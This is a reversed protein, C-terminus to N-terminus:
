LKTKIGCARMVCWGRVSEYVCFGGALILAVAAGVNLSCIFVGVAVLSGGLLGRLWRGRADINPAFFKKM